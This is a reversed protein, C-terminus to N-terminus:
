APTGSRLNARLRVLALALHARLRGAADALSFGLVSEARAIRAAMSSHHLHVTAAAGRVSGALCLARVAALSEEGLREMARVDALGAVAPEPLDAFLALAGLESWRMVRDHPGTFRLATRAGAWSEAARTGPLEPGIGVRSGEPLDRPLTTAVLVAETDGIRTARVQHGMARLGAALERDPGRDPGRDPLAIALAQLPASPAFGLLRLARAREAEGTEASLVLEVLAPDQGSRALAAARELTVEAAVAYRELVIEDLGHAPGEREMWVAGLGDSLERVQAPSEAPTDVAGRPSTRTRRGTAADLLGVPCQALRATAALLTPVSVHDRLLSDFYAIVRVASEADADLTSLKLLLGQM